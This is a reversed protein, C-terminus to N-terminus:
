NDSWGLGKKINESKKDAKRIIFKAEKSDGLNLILGERKGMVKATTYSEVKATAVSWVERLRMLSEKQFLAIKKPTIVLRGRIFDESNMPPIKSVFLSFGEMYKAAHKKGVWYAVVYYSVLIIALLIYLGLYLIRSVGRMPLFVILGFVLLLLVKLLTKM